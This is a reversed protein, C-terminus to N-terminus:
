ANKAAKRNMWRVWIPGSLFLSSYSGSIAGLLMPLAFSVISDVNMVLAVVLVALIALCTTVTTIITRRLVHHLSENVVDALPANSRRRLTRVRDFIVITDNLSYGLITLMVAVFNDNLELGFIVFAFYVILLDHVLAILASVGAPVGGIRRFRFGVYVILLVAALGLALLCRLLFKTGKSPSLSDRSQEIMDLKELDAKLANIKEADTEGARSITIMDKGELEDMQWKVDNGLHKKALEVVKNEDMEVSEVCQYRVQTGGKFSIDMQTGFIVNCLLGVVMIAASIMLAKPLFAVFDFKKM